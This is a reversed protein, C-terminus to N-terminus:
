KLPMKRGEEVEAIPKWDNIRTPDQEDFRLTTAFSMDNSAVVIPELAAAQALFMGFFSDSYDEYGQKDSIFDEVNRLVSYLNDAQTQREAPTLEEVFNQYRRVAGRGILNHVGLALQHFVISSSMMIELSQRKASKGSESTPNTFKKIVNRLAIDAAKVAATIAASPNKKATELQKENAVGYLPAYIQLMFNDNVARSDDAYRAYMMWNIDKHTLRKGGAEFTSEQWIEENGVKVKKWVKRLMDGVTDQKGASLMDYLGIKYQAAVMPFILNEEKINGTQRVYNALNQKKKDKADPNLNVNKFNYPTPVFVVTEEIAKSLNPNIKKGLKVREAEGRKWMSLHGLEAKFAGMIGFYRALHQQKGSKIIELIRARDNIEAMESVYVQALREAEKEDVALLLGNNNASIRNKIAAYVLEHFYRKAATFADGSATPDGQSTEVHWIYFWELNEVPVKTKNDILSVKGKSDIVISADLLRLDIEKGNKDLPIPKWENSFGREAIDFSAFSVADSLHVASRALKLDLLRKPLIDYNKMMQEADAQVKKLFSNYKQYVPDDENVGVRSFDHPLSDISEKANNTSLASVVSIVWRMEDESRAKNYCDLVEVYAKKTEKVLDPNIPRGTADLAVQDGKEDLYVTIERTPLEIKEKEGNEYTRPRRQLLSGILDQMPQSLNLKEGKTTPNYTNVEGVARMWFDADAFYRGYRDSMTEGNEVLPLYDVSNQLKKLEIDPLDAPDKDIWDTPIGNVMRDLNALALQEGREALLGLSDFGGYYTAKYPLAWSFIRNSADVRRLEREVLGLVKENQGEMAMLRANEFQEVKSSSIEVDRQVTYALKKYNYDEIAHEVRAGLSTHGELITTTLLERIELREGDEIASIDKYRLQDLPRYYFQKNEVFSERAATEDQLSNFGFRGKVAGEGDPQVEM